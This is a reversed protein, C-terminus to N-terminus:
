KLNKVVKKNAFDGITDTAVDIFRHKFIQFQNIPLIHTLKSKRQCKNFFEM